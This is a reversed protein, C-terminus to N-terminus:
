SGDDTVADQGLLDARDCDSVVQDDADETFESTAIVIEPDGGPIVDISYGTLLFTQDIAQAAEAVDGLEDIIADRAAAIGGVIGMTLLTVLLTWEFSLVGDQETWMRKLNCLTTRM